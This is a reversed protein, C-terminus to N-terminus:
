NVFLKRTTRYGNLEISLLYVGMQLQHRDITYHNKGPAAMRGPLGFVERGALDLVSVNIMAAESLTIVVNTQVQFPNPYVQVIDDISVGTSSIVTTQRTEAGANLMVITKVDEARSLTYSYYNSPNWMIGGPKTQMLGSNILISGIDQIYGPLAETDIFSLPYLIKEFYNNESYIKAAVGIGIGYGNSTTYGMAKGYGGMNYYYNNFLHVMGYRVRPHRQTTEDFWNHHLTVKYRDTYTDTDSNGILCTKNNASFKCYSVTIYDAGNSIDVSGDGQRLFTCHDIWIHHCTGKVQIGDWDQEKGDWDGQLYTDAITLNKFIINKQNDGIRFGGESLGAGPGLGIVTKNSLVNILRGKPSILIMGEVQIIYPDAHGCYQILQDMTTIKVTLGGAGGTTGNQGSANVSAWGLPGTSVSASVTVLQLLYIVIVLFLQKM